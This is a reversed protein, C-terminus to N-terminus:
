TSMMTPKYGTVVSGADCPCWHTQGPQSLCNTKVFKLNSITLANCNREALTENLKAQISFSPFYNPNYQCTYSWRCTDSNETTFRVQHLLDQCKQEANRATNQSYLESINELTLPANIDTVIGSYFLDFTSFMHYPTDSSLRIGSEINYYDIMAEKLSACTTNSSQECADLQSAHCSIDIFESLTPTVGPYIPSQLTLNSSLLLLIVIAQSVTAITVSVM